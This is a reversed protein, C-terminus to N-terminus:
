IVLVGSYRVGSSLNFTITYNGANGSFPIAALIDSSDVIAQYITGESAESLVVSVNGLDSIFSVM